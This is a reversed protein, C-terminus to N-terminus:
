ANQAAEIVHCHIWTLAKEPQPCGAVSPPSPRAKSHPGLFKRSGSGDASLSPGKHGLKRPIWSSV